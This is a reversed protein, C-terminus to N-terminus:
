NFRTQASNLVRNMQEGVVRVESTVGIMRDVISHTAELSQATVMRIEEQTLKDLQGLADEIDTSGLLKNFFKESCRHPVCCDNTM